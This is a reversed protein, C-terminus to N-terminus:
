EPEQFFFDYAWLIKQMNKDQILVFDKENLLGYYGLLRSQETVEGTKGDIYELSLQPWISLSHEKEPTQVRI